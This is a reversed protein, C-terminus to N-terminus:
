TFSKSTRGHRSCASVAVAGATETIGFDLLRWEASQLVYLINDPKLDRHVRGASHLLALLKAVAEQMAVIEHFGRGSPLKSYWETLTMGREM